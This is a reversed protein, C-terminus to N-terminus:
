PVLSNLYEELNTYGDGDLDGNRDAPDTPSLGQAQEWTDPMGDQDTDTPATNGPILGVVNQLGLSTENSITAGRTGLSVLEDMVYDDVEDRWLSAGANEVIHDFAEQASLETVPPFDASPTTEWTATGFDGQGLL